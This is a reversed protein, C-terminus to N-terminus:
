KVAGRTLGQIFRSQLLAFAVMPPLLAVVAAAMVNAWEIGGITVYLYLGSQITRRNDSITLAYALLFENWAYIFVIIAVAAMGPQSLPLIIRRIAEFRGCGDIYAAEELERPLTEFFGRMIWIATPIQWATYVMILGFYTDYIGLYSVLLYLPVMICIGPIMGMTLIFFLVPNKAAFQWRAAAYGAPISFVLTAVITLACILASNFM